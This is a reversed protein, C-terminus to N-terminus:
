LRIKKTKVTLVSGVPETKTVNRIETYIASINRLKNYSSHKKCNFACTLIVGKPLLPQKGDVAKLVKLVVHPSPLDDLHFWIDQSESADILDFNDQANQGIQMTYEIGDFIFTETKM